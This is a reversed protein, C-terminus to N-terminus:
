PCEQAVLRIVSLPYSAADYRAGGGLDAILRVNSAPEPVLFGFSAQILELRGLAGEKVFQRLAVTQQQAMFPYAEVLHVGAKRAAAFMAKAEAANISVPKECLVHKGAEAAKIAWEAHLSNPLAVYVADIKPDALLAEYSGHAGAVGTEGAFARAKAADRSAVAAITVRNSPKVAAIFRRAVGGSGMVGLRLPAM